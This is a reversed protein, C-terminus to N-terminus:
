QINVLLMDIEQRLEGSARDRSKELIDSVKSLDDDSLNNGINAIVSATESELGPKNLLKSALKVSEVLHIERLAPLIRRAENADPALNICKGLLQLRQRNTVEGCESARSVAERFAVVRHTREDTESVVKLLPEVVECGPWNGAADISARKIVNDQSELGELIVDLGKKHGSHGLLNLLLAHSDVDETPLYQLASDTLIDSGGCRNLVTLITHEVQGQRASEVNLMLDVLQPFQEQNGIRRLSGMSASAIEAEDSAANKLLLEVGNDMYRQGIATLLEAKVRQPAEPVLGIITSNVDQRPITYLSERAARQEQGTTEAAREALFEVASGDCTNKLAELAAVRVSLNDSQAAQKVYPMASIDARESLAALVTIQTQEDTEPILEGLLSVIQESEVKASLMIAAMQLRGSRSGIIDVIREDTGDAGIEVFGQLAGVQVQVPMSEDLLQEYVGMARSVKQDQAFDTACSLRAHLLENLVRGEVNGQLRALADEADSSGINSLANAAAIALAENKGDIIQALQEVAGADRRHGLTGIIGISVIDGKSEELRKRLAEDAESGPITELAHRAMQCVEPANLMNALLEVSESSGIIGLQRLLFDRGAGSIDNGLVKLFEQELVRRGESNSSFRRVIDTLQYKSRQSHGYEYNVVDELLPRIQRNIYEAQGLPEAPAELDGAAFQVGALFHKLVEENWFIHHHHGLSSYFVRGAGYNRVWSIPVRNTEPDAARTEPDDFDLELLILCEELSVPRIRYIEENLKFTTDAFMKVLPHEPETVKIAWTGHAEWPHGDFYGGLIAAGEEWEYFSDTAGHIGVVGKGADLFNLLGERQKETPNLHTTNNFCVVDYEDLGDEFVSMDTSIDVTFAGTRRAMIDMVKEFYPISSHAFGECHSFILVKRPSDPEVFPESPSAVKMHAIEEDSIGFSQCALITLLLMSIINARLNLEM